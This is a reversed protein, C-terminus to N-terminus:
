DRPMWKHGCRSRGHPFEAIFSRVAEVAEDLTPRRMAYRYGSKDFTISIGAARGCDLPVATYSVVTPGFKAQWDRVILRTPEITVVEM